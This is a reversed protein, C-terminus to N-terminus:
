NAEASAKYPTSKFAQKVYEIVLGVKYSLFGCIVIGTEQLRFDGLMVIIYALLVMRTLSFVVQERGKPHEASFMLSGMFFIGVCIGALAYKLFHPEYITISILFLSSVVAM